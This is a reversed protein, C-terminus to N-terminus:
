WGPEGLLNCSKCMEPPESKPDLLEERLNVLTPHNFLAEPHNETEFLNSNPGGLRMETGCCIEMNGLMDTAIRQWVQPCRKKVKETQNAPSWQCFGPLEKEIRSKFEIYAPLTESIIEKPNPSIGMPRYIMFLLDVGGADHIFRTKELLKDQENKNEVAKRELVISTHVPFVKNIRALNNELFKQNEDYLSIRIRSIGAHKLETIRNNTLYLGNTVINVYHGRKSLWAIISDLEKVILPEGGVLDVGICNAFLPNAFIRKVKDLTAEMDRWGKPNLEKGICCFDCSLNCRKTIVLGAIQPTYRSIPMKAKRPLTRYKLYNWARPINRSLHTKRYLDYYDTLKSM